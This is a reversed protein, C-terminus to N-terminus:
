KEYVGKKKDEEKSVIETNGTSNIEVIVNAARMGLDEPDRFKGESIEQAPLITVKNVSEEYPATDLLTYTDRNMKDYAAPITADSWVVELDLIKDPRSNPIKIANEVERRILDHSFNTSIKNDEFVSPTVYDAYFEFQHIGQQHLGAKPVPAYIYM